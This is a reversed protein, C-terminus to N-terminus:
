KVEVLEVRFGEVAEPIVTVGLGPAQPIQMLGAEDLGFPAAVVADRFPSETQDFEFTAHSLRDPRADAPSPPWGSCSPPPACPPAGTTPSM